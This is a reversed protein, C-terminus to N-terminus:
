RVQKVLKGSETLELLDILPFRQHKPHPALLLQRVGPSHRLILPLSPHLWELM